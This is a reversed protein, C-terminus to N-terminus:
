MPVCFMCLANVIVYNNDNDNNAMIKWSHLM